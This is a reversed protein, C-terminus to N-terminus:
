PSRALSPRPSPGEGLSASQAGGCNRKAESASRRVDLRVRSLAVEISKFRGRGDEDLDPIQAAGPHDRYASEADQYRAVCSAIKDAAKPDADIAGMQADVCRASVKRMQEFCESGTAIAQEGAAVWQEDISKNCGSGLLVSTFLLVRLDM